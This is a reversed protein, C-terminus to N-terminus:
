SGGTEGPERHIERWSPGLNKDKALHKNRWAQAMCGFACAEKKHGWLVESGWESDKRGPSRMQTERSGPWVGSVMLRTAKM